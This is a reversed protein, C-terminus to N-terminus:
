LETKLINAQSSAALAFSDFVPAKPKLINSSTLHSAWNALFEVMFAQPERRPGVM